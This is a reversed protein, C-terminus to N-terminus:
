IQSKSSFAEPIFAAKEKDPYVKETKPSPDRFQLPFGEGDGNEKHSHVLFDLQSAESTLSSHLRFYLRPWSPPGIM